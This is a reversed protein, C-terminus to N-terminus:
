PFHRRDGLVRDLKGVREIEVAKSQDTVIPTCACGVDDRALVPLTEGM